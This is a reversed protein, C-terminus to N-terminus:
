RSASRSCSSIGPILTGSGAPTGDTQELRFTFM